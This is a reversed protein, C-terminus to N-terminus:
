YLSLPFLLLARPRSLFFSECQTLSFDSFRPSKFIELFVLPETGVNEVHHGYSNPIIGSDGGRIDFTRAASNGAFATIRGQGSIVDPRSLSLTLPHSTPVSPHFPVFLIVRRDPAQQFFNQPNTEHTQIPTSSHEGTCSACDVPLSASWRPHSRWHRRNLSKLNSKGFYLGRCYTDCLQFLRHDEGM